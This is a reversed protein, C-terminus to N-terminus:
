DKGYLGILKQLYAYRDAAEAQADRQAGQLIRQGKVYTSGIFRSSSIAPEFYGVKRVASELEPYWKIWARAQARIEKGSLGCYGAAFESYDKRKLKSSLADFVHKEITKIDSPDVNKCYTKM